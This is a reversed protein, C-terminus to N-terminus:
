HDGVDVDVQRHKEKRHIGYRGPSRFACAEVCSRCGLDGKLTEFSTGIGIGTLLAIDIATIVIGECCSTNREDPHHLSDTRGIWGDISQCFNNREVIVMVMLNRVIHRLRDVPVSGSSICSGTRANRTTDRHVVISRRPVLAVEETLFEALILV